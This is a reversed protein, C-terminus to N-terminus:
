MAVVVGLFGILVASWRRWGVTEGLLLVSAGHRLDAGGSLFDRRRGAASLVGGLLVDGSGRDLSHRARDALRSPAGAHVRHRGGSARVAATFPPGRRQAGPPTRRAFLGPAAM